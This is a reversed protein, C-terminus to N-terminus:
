SLTKGFIPEDAGSEDVDVPEGMITTMRRALMAYGFYDGGEAWEGFERFVAETAKVTEQLREAGFGLVRKAALVYCKVVIEAADRQEGLMAWERNNRPSKTAPLIFGGPLLDGLEEDLKKKAREVGVARRNVSFRELVGNAAETVRELRGAGIGFRDNLAVMFCLCVVHGAAERNEEVRKSEPKKDRLYRTQAQRAM